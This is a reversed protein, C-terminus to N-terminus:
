LRSLQLQTGPTSEIYEWRDSVSIQEVVGTWALAHVALLALLVVRIENRALM